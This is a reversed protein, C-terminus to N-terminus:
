GKLIEGGCRAATATRPIRLLPLETGNFVFNAHWGCAYECYGEVSVSPDTLTIYIANTDLPLSGGRMHDIIVSLVTM